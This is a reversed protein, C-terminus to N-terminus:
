AQRVSTLLGIRMATVLAQARNNAGLANTEHEFGLEEVIPGGVVVLVAAGGTTVEVGSIPQSAAVTVAGSLSGLAEPDVAQGAAGVSMSFVFGWLLLLGILAPLLRRLLAAPLIYGTITLM